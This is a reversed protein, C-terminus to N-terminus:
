SDLAEEDAHIQAEFQRLDDIYQNKIFIPYATWFSPNMELQALVRAINGVLDDAVAWISVCGGKSGAVFFKGNPSFSFASIDFLCSIEAAMAGTCLEYFIVRTRSGDM